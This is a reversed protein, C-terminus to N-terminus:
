RQFPQSLCVVVARYGFLERPSFLWQMVSDTKMALLTHFFEEFCQQFLEAEVNGLRVIKFFDEFVQGRGM